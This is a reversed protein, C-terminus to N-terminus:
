RSHYVVPQNPHVPHQRVPFGMLSITRSSTSHLSWNQQHYVHMMSKARTNDRITSIQLDFHIATQPLFHMRRHVLHRLSGISGLVSVDVPRAFMTRTMTKLMIINEAITQGIQHYQIMESAATPVAKPHTFLLLHQAYQAVTEGRIHHQWQVITAIGV